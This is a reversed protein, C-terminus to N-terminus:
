ELIPRGLRRLADDRTTELSRGRRVLGAGEILALQREQEVHEVM